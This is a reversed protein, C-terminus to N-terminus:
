VVLGGLVQGCAVLLCGGLHLVVLGDVRLSGSLRWVLLSSVVLLQEGTQLLLQRSCDVHLCCLMRVIRRRWAM